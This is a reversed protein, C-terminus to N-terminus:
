TESGGERLKPTAPLSAAVPEGTPASTDPSTATNAYISNQSNIYGDTNCHFHCKSFSNTDWNADSHGNTNRSTHGNTNRNTHGDTDANPLRSFRQGRGDYRFRLACLLFLFFQWGTYFHIPVCLRPQFDHV